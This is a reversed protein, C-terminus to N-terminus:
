PLHMDLLAVFAPDGRLEAFDPDSMFHERALHRHNPTEFFKKLMGLAADKDGCVAHYGAANLLVCCHVHGTHSGDADCGALAMARRYSDEASKNKGARRQMSACLLWAIADEPDLAVAAEAHVAAQEFSGRTGYTHALSRHTDPLPQIDLSETFCQIATMDDRRKLAIDGLGRLAFARSQADSKRARLARGFSAEAARDDHVYFRQYEAYHTWTAADHPYLRVACAYADGAAAIDGRQEAAVGQQLLVALSDRPVVDATVRGFIISIGAASVACCAAVFLKAAVNSM